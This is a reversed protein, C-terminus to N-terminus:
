PAACCGAAGSLDDMVNAVLCALSVDGRDCAMDLLDDLWATLSAAAELSAVSASALSPALTTAM